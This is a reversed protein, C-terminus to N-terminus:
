LNNFDGYSLVTSTKRICSFDFYDNLPKRFEELIEVVSFVLCSLCLGFSLLEQRAVGVSDVLVRNLSRAM